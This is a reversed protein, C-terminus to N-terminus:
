NLVIARIKLNIKEKDEGSMYSLEADCGMKGMLVKLRNTFLAYGGRMENDGIICATKEGQRFTLKIPVKGKRVQEIQKHCILLSCEDGDITYKVTAVDDIIQIDADDCVKDSWGNGKSTITLKCKM